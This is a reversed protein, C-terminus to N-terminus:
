SSAMLGVNDPEPVNLDWCAAGGAAREGAKHVHLFHAAWELHGGAGAEGSQGAGAM